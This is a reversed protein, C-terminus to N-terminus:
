KRGKLVRHHYKTFYLYSIRAITIDFLYFAINGLIIIVTIIIYSYKEYNSEVININFLLALLFYMIGFSLNFILFKIFYKIFKNSLKDLFIKIIPYYGFFLIFGFSIEKNTVLFFSLITVVIYAYIGNKVGTEAVMPILILGAIAPVTFEALPIIGGLLMCLLSLAVTVGSIAINRTMIKKSM